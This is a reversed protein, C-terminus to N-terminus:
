AQPPLTNPVLRHFGPAGKGGRPSDATMKSRLQLLRFIPASTDSGDEDTTTKSPSKSQSAKWVKQIRQVAAVEEQHKQRITTVADSSSQVFNSTPLNEQGIAGQVLSLNEHQIPACRGAMLVMAVCTFSPSPHYTSDIVARSTALCVEAAFKCSDNRRTTENRKEEPLVKPKQLKPKKLNDVENECSYEDTLTSHPGGRVLLHLLQSVLQKPVWLVTALHHACHLVLDIAIYLISLALVLAAGIKWTKKLSAEEGTRSMEADQVAGYEAECSGSNAEECETTVVENMKLSSTEIEEFGSSGTDLNSIADETNDTDQLAAIEVTPQDQAVANVCNATEEVDPEDIVGIASISDSDAMPILGPVAETIDASFDTQQTATVNDEPPEEIDTSNEEDSGVEEHFSAGNPQDEPVSPPQETTEVLPSQLEAIMQEVTALRDGISASESEASTADSGSGGQQECPTLHLIWDFSLRLVNELAATCEDSEGVNGGAFDCFDIAVDEPDNQVWLFSANEGSERLVNKTVVFGPLASEATSKKCFRQFNVVEDLAERIAGSCRTTNVKHEQCFSQVQAPVHRTVDVKLLVPQVDLLMPLVLWLPTSDSRAAATVFAMPEVDLEVVSVSDSSSQLSSHCLAVLALNRGVSVRVM